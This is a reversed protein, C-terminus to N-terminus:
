DLVGQGGESMEELLELVIKTQDTTDLELFAQLGFTVSVGRLPCCALLTGLCVLRLRRM